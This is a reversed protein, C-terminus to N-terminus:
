GYLEVRSIFDPKEIERAKEIIAKAEDVTIMPTVRSLGHQYLNFMTTMLLEVHLNSFKASEELMIKIM